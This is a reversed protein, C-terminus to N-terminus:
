KKEDELVNELDEIEGNFWVNVECRVVTPSYELITQDLAKVDCILQTQKKIADAIEKELSEKKIITMRDSM